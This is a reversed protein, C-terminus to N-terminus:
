NSISIAKNSVNKMRITEVIFSAIDARSIKLTLDKERSDFDTKFNGKAPENTFASPRVITWDIGSEFVLKEQVKHDEFAKKLLLGFMIHKWFFNLNNWSEGMGLTTQCILRKVGLESMAKIINDTGIARVKGKAGDGLACIVADCNQIANKVNFYNTVDGKVISLNHNKLDQLKEISRSFAKVTYGKSLAEKVIHTGLSGTAGFIVITQM